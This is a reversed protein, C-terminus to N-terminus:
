FNDKRTRIEGFVEAPSADPMGLLDRVAPEDVRVFPNTRRELGITTPVTPKGADRLADIERSRIILDGNAPEITLAFRANSKTYEHGCYVVTEDPLAMLKELSEWLM